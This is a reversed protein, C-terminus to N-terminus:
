FRCASVLGQMSMQYNMVQPTTARAEMADLVLLPDLLAPAAEGAIAFAWATNARAQLNFEGM